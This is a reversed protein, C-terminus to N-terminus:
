LLEAFSYRGGNLDINLHDPPNEHSFYGSGLAKICFRFENEQLFRDPKQIVSLNALEAETRDDCILQGKSYEVNRGEVAFPGAKGDYGNLFHDIENALAVPRGIRVAYRGFRAKLMELDASVNSCCFLYVAQLHETQTIGGLAENRKQYIGIGETPDKRSLCEINKYGQQLGVRFKGQEVFQVAHEEEVFCRYLTAPYIGYVRNNRKM